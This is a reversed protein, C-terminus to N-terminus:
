IKCGVGLSESGGAEGEEVIVNSCKERRVGFSFADHEQHRQSHGQSPSRHPWLRGWVGGCPWDYAGNMSEGVPWQYVQVLEVDM